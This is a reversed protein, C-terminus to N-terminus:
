QKLNEPLRLATFIGFRRWEIKELAPFTLNVMTASFGLWQARKLKPASLTTLTANDVIYVIADTEDLNDLLIETIKNTEIFIGGMRTLNRFDLTTETYNPHIVVGDVLSTCGAFRANIEDQSNLVLYGEFTWMEYGISPQQTNFNCERATVV